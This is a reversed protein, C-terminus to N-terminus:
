ASQTRQGVAGEHKAWDNFKKVDESTVMYFLDLFSTITTKPKIIQLFCLVENLDCEYYDIAKMIDTVPRIVKYLENLENNTINGWVSELTPFREANSRTNERVLKLLFDGKERMGVIQESEILFRILKKRSPDELMEDKPDRKKSNGENTHDESSSESSLHTPVSWYGHINSNPDDIRKWKDLNPKEDHLVPVLTQTCEYLYRGIGFQAAALRMANFMGDKISDMNMQDVGIWKVLSRDNIWVRIGYIFGNKMVKIENEWHLPGFVEDLRKQLARSKVYPIVNATAQGNTHIFTSKVQWSIENWDFPKNLEQEVEKLEKKSM